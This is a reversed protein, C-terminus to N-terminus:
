WTGVAIYRLALMLLVVASVKRRVCVASHATLVLIYQEMHQGSLRQVLMTDTRGRKGEMTRWLRGM